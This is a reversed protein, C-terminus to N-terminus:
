VECTETKYSKKEHHNFNIPDGENPILLFPNVFKIICLVFYLKQTCLLSVFLVGVFSVECLSTTNTMIKKITFSITANILKKHSSKLTSDQKNPRLHEQYKEYESFTLNQRQRM